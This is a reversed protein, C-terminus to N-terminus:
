DYYSVNFYDDEEALYLEQSAGTRWLRLLHEDFLLEELVQDCDQSQDPFAAPDAFDDPVAANFGDTSGDNATIPDDPIAPDGPPVAANFGDTSGDNATIPDDPIAPYGPPVAANSGDPNTTSRSCTVTTQGDPTFETAHDIHNYM